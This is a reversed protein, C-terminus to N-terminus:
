KSSSGSDVEPQELYQLLNATNEGGFFKPSQLMTFHDLTHQCRYQHCMQCAPINEYSKIKLVKSEIGTGSCYKNQYRVM